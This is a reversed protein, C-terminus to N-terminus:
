ASEKILPLQKLMNSLAIADWPLHETIGLGVIDAIGGVDRLLTVIQDMTMRGEPIAGFTGPADMPNSFYLSRFFKPDLVDLDLHIALHTAGTSKFWDLVKDSSVALEAPTAIKMEHSRVFDWEIPMMDNMGAYMVNTPKIPRKVRATFDRDGEGLLNGLVMAHAHTYHEPTLIDPHSDVWLLALDGEYRENLYAFPALDVLCDGGFVTITDPKQNHLIDAAADAQRLLASRAVIGNEIPLDEGTPLDVPVVATETTTTPALFNLMQAGFHYAPLDGGQWQPMLLRLNKPHTQSM